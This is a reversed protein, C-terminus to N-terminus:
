GPQQPPPHPLPTEVKHQLGIQHRLLNSAEANKGMAVDHPILPVELFLSLTSEPLTLPRRLVWKGKTPPTDNSFPIVEGTGANLLMPITAKKWRQFNWLRRWMQSIAM